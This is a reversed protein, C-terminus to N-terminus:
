KFNEICTKLEESDKFLFYVNNPMKIVFVIRLNVSSYETSVHFMTHILLYVMGYTTM